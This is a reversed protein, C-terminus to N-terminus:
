VASSAQALERGGPVGEHITWAGPTGSGGSRSLWASSGRWARLVSRDGGEVRVWVSVEDPAEPVGIMRGDGSHHLALVVGDRAMSALGHAQYPGELSFAGGGAFVLLLVDAVGAFGCALDMLEQVGTAYGVGLLSQGM